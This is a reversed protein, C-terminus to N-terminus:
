PNEGAKVVEPEIQDTQSGAPNEALENRLKKVADYLRNYVTKQSVQLMEAIEAVSFGQQIHLLIVIRHKEPLRDVTKWLYSQYERGMLSEEPTVDGGEINKNANILAKLTQRFRRKRLMGRCTNITITYMWANLHTSTQYNKLNNYIAIFAHQIADEAEDHNRLVSYAFRYLRARYLEVLTEIIVPDQPSHSRLLLDLDPKNSTTM